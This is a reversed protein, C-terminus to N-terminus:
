LYRVNSCGDSFAALFFDRYISVEGFLYLFSNRTQNSETNKNADNKSDELTDYDEDDIIIRHCEDDCKVENAEEGCLISM